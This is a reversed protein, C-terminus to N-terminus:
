AAKPCSESVKSSGAMVHLCWQTNGVLQPQSAQMCYLTQIKCFPQNTINQRKDRILIKRTHKSHTAFHMWLCWLSSCVAARTSCPRTTQLCRDQLRLPRSASSAQGAYRHKWGGLALYIKHKHELLVFHIHNKNTLLKMTGNSHMWALVKKKPACDGACVRSINFSDHPLHHLSLCM